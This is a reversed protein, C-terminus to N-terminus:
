ATVIGRCEGLVDIHILIRQIQDPNGARKLVGDYKWVKQLNETGYHWMM